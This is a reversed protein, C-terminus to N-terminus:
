EKIGLYGAIARADDEDLWRELLFKLAMPPPLIRGGVDLQRGSREPGAPDLLAAVTVGLVAALGPLENVTVARGSREVESVTAQSWGHGFPILRAALGVQSFGALARYGRVNKAVVEGLTVSGRRVPGDPPPPTSPM